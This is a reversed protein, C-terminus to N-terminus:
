PIRQMKQFTFNRLWTILLEGSTQTSPGIFGTWRKGDQKKLVKVTQMRM